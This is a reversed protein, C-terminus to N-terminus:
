RKFARENYIPRAGLNVINKATDLDLVATNVEEICIYDAEIASM